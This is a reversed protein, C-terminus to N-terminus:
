ERLLGDGLGYYGIGALPAIVFPDLIAIEQGFLHQFDFKLEIPLFASISWKLATFGSMWM